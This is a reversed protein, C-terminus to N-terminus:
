TTFIATLLVVGAGILSAVAKYATVIRNEHIGKKEFHHHLPAMLFIRRGTRKFHLVQLIVSLATIVYIGGLIAASLSLGSLVALCALLGGLALSGTDGMFIRAPYRNYCLFGGVSGVACAILVLENMQGDSPAFGCVILMLAAFAILYVNTVGGALGDLGDTLNVANTFALFIFVYYPLAWYSFDIAYDTFPAFVQGRTETGWFAYAAVLCAIILQLVLKAAASLGKNHKYHVKIYDDTFGILGYGLTVVLCVLAAGGDGRILLAFPLAMSILIGMGGMTPTGSKVAHSEVYHLIPQKAKFKNAIRIVFPMLAASFALSIMFGLIIRIM